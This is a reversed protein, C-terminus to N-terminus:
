IGQLMRLETVMRIEVDHSFESLIALHKTRDADLSGPLARAAEQVESFAAQLREISAAISRGRPTWDRQGAAVEVSAWASHNLLQRKCDHLVKFDDESNLLAVWAKEAVNEEHQASTLPGPSPKDLALQALARERHAAQYLANAAHKIVVEVPTVRFDLTRYNM